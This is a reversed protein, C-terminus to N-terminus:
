VAEGAAIAARREMEALFAPDKWRAQYDAEAQQDLFALWEQDQTEDAPQNFNRPDVEQLDRGEDLVEPSHNSLISM